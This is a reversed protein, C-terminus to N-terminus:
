WKSGNYCKAGRIYVGSIYFGIVMGFILGWKQGWKDKRRIYAWPTNVPNQPIKYDPDKATYDVSYKTYSNSKDNTPKMKITNHYTNNYRDVINDLVNFYVNKSVVTMHKYTRIFREAVIFKRENCTSRM